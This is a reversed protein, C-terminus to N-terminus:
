GRGSQHILLYILYFGGICLTVMGVPLQNPAFLNVAIFDAALLLIAGMLAPVALAMGQDGTLKKALQPAVLAIFAIPGTVATVAATLVVGVFMAIRRAQEADIGLMYASDDGMELINLAGSLAFAVVLALTICVFSPLVMAWSMGNLSGAGWLAATMATDLNSSIMMWSNFASLMASVGIGILILRFGQVGQQWALFYVVAACVVGGGIAGMAIEAYGGGFVIIVVLAGTYAGTNFGIIDPSGLPNRILSQFLAGSVGLAAGFVLASVIRPLRWELVMSTLFRDAHGSLVLNLESISTASQGFFLACALLLGLVVTLMGATLLANKAVLFHYRGGRQGIVITKAPQM